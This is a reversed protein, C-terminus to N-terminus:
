ANTKIRRLADPLFDLLDGALVGYNTLKEAALDGCLGHIYAGLVAAHLASENNFETRNGIQAWLGAILGSLVDGTGAKALAPGGTPNVYRTQGDTILSRMGKLLCVGQTLDCLKKAATEREKLGSGVPKKLLRAMEVPHPTCISAPINKFVTPIKKERSIQNLGDADVLVPLTCRKLFPVVFGCNGLGPGIAILSPKFQKIFREVAPLAKKSLVGREEALPLTLMEPLAAAAICQSGKPLALAVLGAGAKLASRACLVAAGTMRQSGAIILVRGFTGKHSNKPRKPFHTKVFTLSTKM